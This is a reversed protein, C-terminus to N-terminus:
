PATTQWTEGPNKCAAMVSPASAADYVCSASSFTSPGVVRKMVCCGVLGTSPCSGSATYPCSGASVPQDTWDCSLSADAGTMQHCTEYGGDEPGTGSTGGTATGRTGGQGTGHTGGHGTGTTGGSGAESTGGQGTGGGTSSSCSALTLSAASVWAFALPLLNKTKM